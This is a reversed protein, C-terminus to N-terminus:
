LLNGACVTSTVVVEAPGDSRARCEDFPDALSEPRPLCRGAPSSAPALRRLAPADDADASVSVQFQDGVVPRRHYGERSAVALERVRDRGGVLVSAFYPFGDHGLPRFTRGRRAMHRDGMLDDHDGHHSHAIRSDTERAMVSALVDEVATAVDTDALGGLVTLHAMNGASAM